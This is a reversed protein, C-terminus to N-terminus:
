TSMKIMHATGSKEFPQLEARRDRSKQLGDACRDFAALNGEIRVPIGTM